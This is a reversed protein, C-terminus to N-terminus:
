SGFVPSMLSHSEGLPGCDCGYAMATTSPMTQYLSDPWRGSASTRKSGLVSFKWLQGIGDPPTWAPMMRCM